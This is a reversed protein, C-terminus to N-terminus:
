MGLTKAYWVIIEYEYDSDSIKRALAPNKQGNAKISDLLTKSREETFWVADRDHVAWPRCVRPDVSIIAIRRAKTM